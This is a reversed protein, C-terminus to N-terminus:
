FLFNFLFVSRTECYNRSLIYSWFEPHKPGSCTLLCRRKREHEGAAITVAAVANWCKAALLM